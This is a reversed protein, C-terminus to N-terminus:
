NGEKSYNTSQIWIAAETRFRVLFDAVFALTLAAMGCGFILAYNEGSHAFLFSYAYGGLAQFLAFSTTARSWAARQAHHDDPLVERIRGLMTPVIGCTLAGTVFTAVVLAASHGVFTLLAAAVAQVFLVIRWTTKFGIRDGLQGCVLPGIVSGLGYLVWYHAGSRAGQHLGRAVYDVLLVMAPVLGLANAAYQAYLLRLTGATRAVEGHTAAPEDAQPTAAPVDDRPWGAWSIATLVLALAGLGLWAARLGFQMLWPIVTGSAAIGVGLGVFIMGSVFGRRAAPIHPLISTAVLVMIAGGAVGSTLRWVFFWLLSLPFACAVFAVSAALMMWRLTHRSTFRHAIPRGLMAGILYGVFNAAGLTVSQSASFWHAQILSPILPTYAFRALGIAVLSGCFGAVTAYVARSDFTQTDLVGIASSQTSM